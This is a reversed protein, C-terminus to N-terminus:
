AAVKVHDEVLAVAQAAAVQVAFVAVAPVWVTLGVWCSGWVMVHV